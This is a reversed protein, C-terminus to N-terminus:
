MPTGLDTVSVAAGVDDIAQYGGLIFPRMAGSPGPLVAGNPGQTLGITGPGFDGGADVSGGADSQNAHPDLWFTTVGDWLTMRIECDGVAQNTILKILNPQGDGRLVLSFNSSATFEQFGGNCHVQCRPGSGTGAFRIKCLVSFSNLSFVAVQAYRAEGFEGGFFIHGSTSPVQYIIQDTASLDGFQASWDAGALFTGGTRSTCEWYAGYLGPHYRESLPPPRSGLDPVDTRTLQSELSSVRGTAGYLLQDVVGGDDTIPNDSM